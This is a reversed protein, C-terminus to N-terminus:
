CLVANEVSYKKDVLIKVIASVRKVGLIRVLARRFNQLRSENKIENPIFNYMKFGDHLLM